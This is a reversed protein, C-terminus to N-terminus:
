PLTKADVHLMRRLTSRDVSVARAKLDRIEEACTQRLSKAYKALVDYRHTIVAQVTALDCRTKATDFKLKPAIKKVQALQLMELASTSGASISNTGAVPFVRRAPM